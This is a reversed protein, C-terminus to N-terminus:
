MNTLAAKDVFPETVGMIPAAPDVLFEDLIRRLAAARELQARLEHRFHDVSVLQAELSTVAGARPRAPATPAKSIDGLFRCWIFLPPRHGNRPTPACRLITIDSRFGVSVTKRCRALNAAEEVM